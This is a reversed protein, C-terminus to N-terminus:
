SDSSKKLSEIRYFGKLLAGSKVELRPATVDGILQAGPYVTVKGRATINGYLQGAIDINHVRLKARVHGTPTVSISGSTEINTVAHYSSILQDEVCVRNNCFRCNVSFARDSVELEQGCHTCNVMRPM